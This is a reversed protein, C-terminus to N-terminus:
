DPKRHFEDPRRDALRQTLTLLADTFPQSRSVTTHALEVFRGVLSLPQDLFRAALGIFNQGVGLTLGTIRNFLRTFFRAGLALADHGRRPFLDVLSHSLRPGLQLTFHSAKGHGTGLTNELTFNVGLGM